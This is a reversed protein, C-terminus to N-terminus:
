IANSIKWEVYWAIATISFLLLPIFVSMFNYDTRTALLSVGLGATVSGILICFM